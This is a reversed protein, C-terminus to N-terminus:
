YRTTSQGVGEGVQGVRRRSNPADPRRRGDDSVVVREEVYNKLCDELTCPPAGKNPGPIGLRMTLAEPMEYMVRDSQCCSTRREEQFRFAKAIPCDPLLRPAGSREREEIAEVVYRFTADFDAEQTNVFVAIATLMDAMAPGKAWDRLAELQMKRWAKCVMAFASLGLTRKRYLYDVVWKPNEESSSGESAAPCRGMQPARAVLKGAINALLGAPLNGWDRWDEDGPVLAPTTSLAQMAEVLTDLAPGRGNLGDDADDLQLNAAKVKLVAGAGGGSLLRVALRPAGDKGPAPGRVEVRRGNLDPRSRLGALHGRDGPGPEAM